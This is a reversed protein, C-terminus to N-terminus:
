SCHSCKEEYDLWEQNCDPCRKQALNLRQKIQQGTTTMQVIFPSEHKMGNDPVWRIRVELMNGDPLTITAAVEEATTHTETIASKPQEIDYTTAM